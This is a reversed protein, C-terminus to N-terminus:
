DPDEEADSGWEGWENEDGSSQNQMEANCNSYEVM